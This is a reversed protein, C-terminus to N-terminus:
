DQKEDPNSLDKLPEVLEFENYEERESKIKEEIEKKNIEPKTKPPSDSPQNERQTIKEKAIVLIKEDMAQMNKALSQNENDMQNKLYLWVGVLVVIPVATFIAIRITQTINLGEVLLLLVIL